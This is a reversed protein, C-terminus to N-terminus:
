LIPPRSKTQYGGFIDNSMDKLKLVWGDYEVGTWDNQAGFIRGFSGAYYIGLNPCGLTKVIAEGDAIPRKMESHCATVNIPPSKVKNGQTGVEM